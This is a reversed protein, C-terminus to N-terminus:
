MPLAPRCKLRNLRPYGAGIYTQYKCVICRPEGPVFGWPTGGGESKRGLRRTGQGATNSGPEPAGPTGLGLPRGTPANHRAPRPAPPNPGTMLTAVRADQTWPPEQRLSRGGSRPRHRPRGVAGRRSWELYPSPSHPLPPVLFSYPPLSAARRVPDVGLVLFSANM